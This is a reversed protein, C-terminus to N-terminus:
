FNSVFLPVPYRDLWDSLEKEMANCINVKIPDEITIVLHLSAFKFDGVPPHYEVFYWGRNEKIPMYKRDESM